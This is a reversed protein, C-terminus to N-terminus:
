LKYLERGEEWINATISHKQLQENTTLRVHIDEPIDEVEYYTDLLLNKVRRKAYILDNLNTCVLLIIPQPEDGEWENDDLYTVYAKLRFRLRYRPLSADFTELLYSTTVVGKQKVICLNPRFAEHEAM